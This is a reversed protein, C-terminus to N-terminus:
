TRRAVVVIATHTMRVVPEDAADTILVDATVYEHGRKEFADTLVGYATHTGGALAPGLHQIESRTHIWPGLAFNEALVRNAVGPWWGPHLLPGGFPSGSRFLPDDSAIGDLYARTAEVGAPLRVPPLTTGVPASAVSIPPREDRRRPNGGPAAFVPRPAAPLPEGWSLGATAPARVGGDPGAVHCDLALAGRQRDGSVERVAGGLTLTEGEYVPRVLSISASGSVAWEVGLTQVLWSALYAYSTAGPVLGGGFGYQRAVEDDHIKNDSTSSTNHARVSGPPLAQGARLQSVDIGATTM